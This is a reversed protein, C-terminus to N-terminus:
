PMRRTVFWRGTRAARVNLIGCVVHYSYGVYTAVPGPCITRSTRCCGEPGRQLNCRLSVCHSCHHGPPPYTYNIAYSGRPHIDLNIALCLSLQLFPAFTTLGATNSALAGDDRCVCARTLALFRERTVGLSMSRVQPSTTSEIGEFGAQLTLDISLCSATGHPAWNPALTHLVISLTSRRAFCPVPYTKSLEYSFPRSAFSPSFSM